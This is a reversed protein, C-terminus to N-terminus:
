VRWPKSRKLRFIGNFSEDGRERERERERMERKRERERM